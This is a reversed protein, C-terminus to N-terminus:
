RVSLRKPAALESDVKSPRDSYRSSPGTSVASSNMPRAPDDMAASSPNIRAV